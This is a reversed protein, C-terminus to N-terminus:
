DATQIKYPLLWGNYDYPALPDMLTNRTMLDFIAFRFGPIVQANWTGTFVGNGQSQFPLRTFLWGWFAHLWAYGDTVNTYLTLDLKEGPTFTILSDLAFYTQLPNVILTDRLTSHIRLSDVRVTNVTESQGYVLSIKKLKWGRDTDSVQGDRRFVANLQVGEQLPKTWRVATTESTRVWHFIEGYNHQHWGVLASDEQVQIDVVPVSDHSQPGRWWVGLTTDDLAIYGETSDSSTGPKFHTTDGEVLAQVAAKDKEIDQKKKCSVLFTLAAALIVTLVLAKRM